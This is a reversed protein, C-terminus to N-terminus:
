PTKTKSVGEIPLWEKDEEGGYFIGELEVYKERIGVVKLPTQGSNVEKHYVTEKLRLNQNEMQKAENFYKSLKMTLAVSYMTAIKQEIYEVPTPKKM